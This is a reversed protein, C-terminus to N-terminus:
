QWSVAISAQMWPLEITSPLYPLLLESPFASAIDLQWNTGTLTLTGPLQLFQSRLADLSDRRQAPDAQMGIEERVTADMLAQQEPTITYPLLPADYSLGCLLKCFLLEEDSYPPLNGSALYALCYAGYQNYEYVFSDGGMLQLRNFLPSFYPSLLVLGANNINSNM